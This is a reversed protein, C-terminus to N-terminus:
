EFSETAFSDAMMVQTKAFVGLYASSSSLMIAHIPPITVPFPKLYRSILPQQCPSVMLLSVPLQLM